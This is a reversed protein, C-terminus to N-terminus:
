YQLVIIGLFMQDQLTTGGFRAKAGSKELLSLENRKSTTCQTHPFSRESQSLARPQLIHSLSIGDICRRVNLGWAVQTYQSSTM